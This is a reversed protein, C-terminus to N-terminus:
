FGRQNGWFTYSVGFDFSDAGSVYKLCIAGYMYIIMIFIIGNSLPKGSVRQAIVGIEIKERVYFPSGKNDIDKLNIRKQVEANKYAGDKFLSNTRGLEHIKKDNDNNVPKMVNAVSIAEVMFTATIYAIFCTIVMLTISIVPGM